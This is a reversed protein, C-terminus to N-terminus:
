STLRWRTCRWNTCTEGVPEKGVLVLEVHRRGGVGVVEVVGDLSTGLSTSKGEGLTKGTSDLNGGLDTEGRIVHSLISISCFDAAASLSFTAGTLFAAAALGAAFVAVLGAAFVAVLAAALGAALGAALFVVVAAAVLFAGTLFAAGAALAAALGAAFVAAALFGTAFFAAAGALFVAEPVL